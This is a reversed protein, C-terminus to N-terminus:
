VQMGLSEIIKTSLAEQEFPKTIYNKAGAKIAKVVNAKEAETTVMIVPIDKFRPDAKLMELTTYGDLEPMNWDMLILAVYQYEAALLDLAVRGNEAEIFDFGVRHVAGSIIRRMISSDDVSLIKKM